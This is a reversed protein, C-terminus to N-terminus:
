LGVAATLELKQRLIVICSDRSFDEFGMTSAASGDEGRLTSGVTSVERPRM